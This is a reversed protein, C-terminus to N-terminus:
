AIRFGTISDVVRATTEEDIKPSDNWLHQYVSIIWYKDGQMNYPKTPYFGPKINARYCLTERIITDVHVGPLEVEAMKQPALTTHGRLVRTDSRRPCQVYIRYRTATTNEEDRQLMFRVRAAIAQRKALSMMAAAKSHNEAAMDYLKEAVGAEFELTKLPVTM